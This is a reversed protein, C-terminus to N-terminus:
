WIIILDDKKWQLDHQVHHLLDLSQQVAHDLDKYSVSCKEKRMYSNVSLKNPGFDYSLHFILQTDKGDQGKPVLGIPSQVYNEFPINKYPGAFRGLKVEKMIKEWLISHNRVSFPLNKLRDQRNIPGEYELSFGTTFGNILFM